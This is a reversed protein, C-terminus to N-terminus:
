RLRRSEPQTLRGMDDSGRPPLDAIAILTRLFDPRDLHGLVDDTIPTTYNLKVDFIDDSSFTVVALELAELGGYSSSHSVVSAGWGNAFRYICSHGDHFPRSKMEILGPIIVTPNASYDELPNSRVPQRSSKRKSSKRKSSKAM